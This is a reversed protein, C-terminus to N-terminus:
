RSESAEVAQAAQDDSGTALTETVDRLEAVAMSIQRSAGQVQGIIQRLQGIMLNFSDAVAGTVDETVEAEVTLDGEAVGSVEALLKMVAAQMQDREKRSHVLPVTNELMTNVARGIRGLETDHSAPVRRSLDGSAVSECAAALARAEAVVPGFVIVRLAIVALLFATALATGIAYLPGADQGATGTQWVAIAGVSGFLVAVFGLALFERTRLTLTRLM